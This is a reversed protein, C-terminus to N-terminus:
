FSDFKYSLGVGVQWNHMLGHADFGPTSQDSTFTGSSPLGYQPIGSFTGTFHADVIVHDQLIYKLGGGWNFTAKWPSTLRMGLDSAANKSSKHIHFLNVGPGVFVYPRAGRYNLLPYYLIEYPTRHISHRAKFTPIDAGLNSFMLPQNSFSYELNAGWHEGLNETIRVGFVAANSYKLGVDRSTTGSDDVQPTARTYDGMSSLSGFAGAEFKQFVAGADQANSAVAISGIAALLLLFTRKM